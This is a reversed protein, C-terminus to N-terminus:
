LLHFDPKRQHFTTFYRFGAARALAYGQELGYALSSPAHADSGLTLIEGGMERYWQLLTLNPMTEQCSQRLGSTNIEIGKGRRILNAFATRIKEEYKHAQFPGFKETGFRKIIDCHAVVDFFDMGSLLILDDFYVPYTEAESLGDRWPVSITMGSEHMLHISALVFDYPQAEILAQAQQPAHHGQGAEVGYGIKIRQDFQRRASAIQQWYDTEDMFGSRPGNNLNKTQSREREDFDLHETFCIEELGLEIAKEIQEAMSTKSDLSVRSHM